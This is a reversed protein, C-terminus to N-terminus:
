RSHQLYYSLHSQWGPHICVIYMNAMSSRLRYQYGPLGNMSVLQKYHHVLAHKVYGSHIHVCAMSLRQKHQYDPLCNTYVLQKYHHLTMSTM